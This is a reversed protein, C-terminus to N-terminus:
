SVNKEELKFIPIILNSIFKNNSNLKFLLLKESRRVIILKETELEKILKSISGKDIGIQKAISALNFQWDRNKYLFRLLKIRNKTGLAKELQM